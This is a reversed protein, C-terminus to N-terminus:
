KLVAFTMIMSYMAPSPCTSFNIPLHLLECLRELCAAMLANNQWDVLILPIMILPYRVNLNFYMLLELDLCKGSLMKSALAKKEESFEAIGLFLEKKKM